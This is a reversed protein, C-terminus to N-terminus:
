RTVRPRSIPSFPTRDTVPELQYFERLFTPNREAFLLNALRDAEAIFLREFWCFTPSVQGLRGSTEVQTCGCWVSCRARFDCAKCESDLRERRAQLTKALVRDFGTTLDGLQMEANDDERVLRDCPYIKGTPSVALEEVGFGCRRIPQKGRVLHTVIKGYIPDVRRLIGGRFLEAYDDALARFEREFLACVFDSWASLHNPAFYIEPVGLGALYHLSEVLRTSTEPTLVAVLQRVLNERVLWRLNKDVEAFSGTGDAFPRERDQVTAAGDVSVQVHVSFNRLFRIRREDLLTGNTSLSFSLSIARRCAEARAYDAVAEMREVELMPEGGFFALTLHGTSSNDFGFDVAQKALPLPMARDFKRGTYCYRCRLNCQHNLVLALNL